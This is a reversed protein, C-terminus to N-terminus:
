VGKSDVAQWLSRLWLWRWVDCALLAACPVALALRLAPTVRADPIWQLGVALAALFVVTAARTRLERRYYTVGDIRLGVLEGGSVYVTFPRQPGPATLLWYLPSALRLPGLEVGGIRLGDLFRWENWIRWRPPADNHRLADVTGHVVRLRPDLCAARRIVRNM